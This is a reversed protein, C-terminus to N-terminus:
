LGRCTFFFYLKFIKLWKAENKIFTNIQKPIGFRVSGGPEHSCMSELEDSLGQEM